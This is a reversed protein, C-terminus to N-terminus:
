RMPDPLGESRKADSTRPLCVPNNIVVFALNNPKHAFLLCPDIAEVTIRLPAIEVKFLM